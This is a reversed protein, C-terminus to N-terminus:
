LSYNQGCSPCIYGIVKHGGCTPCLRPKLEVNCKCRNNQSTPNSKAVVDSNIFYEPMGGLRQHNFMVIEDRVQEPDFYKADKNIDYINPNQARFAIVQKVREDIFTHSDDWKKEPVRPDVFILGGPLMGTNSKLIIM